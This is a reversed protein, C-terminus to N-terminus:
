GFPLQQVTWRYVSYELHRYHTAMHDTWANRAVETLVVTASMGCTHCVFHAMDTHIPNETAM